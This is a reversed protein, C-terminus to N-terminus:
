NNNSKNIVEDWEGICEIWFMANGKDGKCDYKRVLLASIADDFM